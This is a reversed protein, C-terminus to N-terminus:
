RTRGQTWAKPLAGGKQLWQDMEQTLDVLRLAIDVDFEKLLIKVIQRQEKLNADPDM